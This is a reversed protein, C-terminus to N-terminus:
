GLVNSLPMRFTEDSTKNRHCHWKIVSFPWSEMINQKGFKGMNEKLSMQLGLM